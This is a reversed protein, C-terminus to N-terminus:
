WWRLAVLQNVLGVRSRSVRKVVSIGVVLEALRAGRGRDVGRTSEAGDPCMFSAKQVLHLSIIGTYDPHAANQWILIVHFQSPFLAPCLKALHHPFQFPMLNSGLVCTQQFKKGQIKFQFVYM